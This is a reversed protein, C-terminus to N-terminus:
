LGYTSIIKNNEDFVYRTKVSIAFEKNKEIDYRSYTSTVDYANISVKEIIINEHKINTNKSWTKEYLAKIEEESPYRVDWYREIKGDAFKQYIDYFNQTHEAELLQYIVKSNIKDDETQEPVVIVASVATDAISTMNNISDIKQATPITATNNVTDNSQQLFYYAGAGIVLIGVLIFPWPLKKKDPASYNNQYQYNNSNPQQASYSPQNILIDDHQPAVKQPAPKPIDYITKQQKSIFEQELKRSQTTDLNWHEYLGKLHLQIEEDNLNTWSDIVEKPANQNNNHVFLFNIYAAINNTNIM